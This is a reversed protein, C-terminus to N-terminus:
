LALFRDIRKDTLDLNKLAHDDVAFTMQRDFDM